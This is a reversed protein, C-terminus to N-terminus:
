NITTKLRNLLKAVNELTYLDHLKLIQLKHFLLKTHTRRDAIALLIASISYSHETNCKQSHSTYLLEWCRISLKSCTKHIQSKWKLFDDIM